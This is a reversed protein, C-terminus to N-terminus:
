IDLEDLLQNLFNQSNFILDESNDDPNTLLGNYLDDNEIENEYSPHSESMVVSSMDLYDSRMPTLINNNDNNNTTNQDDSSMGMDNQKFDQLSNILQRNLELFKDNFQKFILELVKLIRKGANSIKQLEILIKYGIDCVNEIEKLREMDVREKLQYKYITLCVFSYYITHIAYWYTGNLLKMNIMEYSLKIIEISIKICNMSMRIQYELNPYDNVNLTIFHFFPKYLILRTLLFDLQLLKQPKLYYNNKENIFMSVMKSTPKLESPLQDYWRKLQLELDNVHSALETKHLIKALTLQSTYEYIKSMVLILKTHENNMGCSSIKHYEVGAPLDIIGNASIREDDLDLPLEQDINDMDMSPPLGFICNMYIDVKYISWFLRKKTEDEIPTPGHLSSSKYLGEKIASRLAIGIYHYCAKLNASCQLFLTLMFLTQISYIDSVDSFDILTKSKIFFNLGEDGYFDKKSTSTAIDGDDNNDSYEDKSFLAGVALVSYILAEARIENLTKPHNKTEYLSDLIKILTPRHYFRFLVCAYNWTKLILKLAIERPPLISTDGMKIGNLNLLGEKNVNSDILKVLFENIDNNNNNNNNKVINKLNEKTFLVEVIHKYDIVNSSKSVLSSPIHQEDISQENHILNNFLTFNGQERKFVPINSTPTSSPTSKSTSTSTSIANINSKSTLNPTSESTVPKSLTPYDCKLHNQNCYFCPQNGDCRRKKRRCTLCATSVRLRKPTLKRTKSDNTLVLVKPIKAM